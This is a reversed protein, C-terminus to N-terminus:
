AALPVRPEEEPLRGVQVERRQLRPHRTPCFNLLFVLQHVFFTFLFLPCVQGTRATQMWQLAGPCRGKLPAGGPRNSEPTFVDAVSKGGVMPSPSGPRPPTAEQAKTWVKTKRPSGGRQKPDERKVLAREETDSLSGVKWAERSVGNGVGRGGGNGKGVNEQVDEDLRLLSRLWKTGPRKESKQGGGRGGADAESSWFLLDLM